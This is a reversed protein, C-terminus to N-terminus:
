REIIFVLHGNDIRRCRRLIGFLAMDRLADRVCAKNYATGRMGSASLVRDTIDQPAVPMTEAMGGAIEWTWYAISGGIVHSQGAYPNGLNAFQDLDPMVAVCSGARYWDIQHRKDRDETAPCTIRHDRGSEMCFLEPWPVDKARQQFDGSVTLQTKTVLTEGDPRLMVSHFDFAEPRPRAAPRRERQPAPTAEVALEDFVEPWSAAPAPRAALLYAYHEAIVDLSAAAESRLAVCDDHVLCLACRGVPQALTGYCPRSRFAQLEAEALSAEFIVDDM